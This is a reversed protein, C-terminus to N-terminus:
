FSEIKGGKKSFYMLKAMNVAHDAARELRRVSSLINIYEILFETGKSLKTLIEKEILSLLDDSKSEEIMVKRYLEDFEEGDKSLAETAYSISNIAALHLQIIYNDLHNFDFESNGIQNKMGRVYKKGDVLIRNLENTIKLVAVITRLDKAEPEFLALAKVVENDIDNARDPIEKMIKKLSTLANVDKKKFADLIEKHINIVDDSLNVLTQNISQLKEKNKPLM